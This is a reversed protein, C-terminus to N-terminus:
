ECKRIENVVIQEVTIIPSYDSAIISQKQISDTKLIVLSETDCEKCFDIVDGIILGLENYSCFIICKYHYWESVEGNIINRQEYSEFLYGNKVTGYYKAKYEFELPKASM